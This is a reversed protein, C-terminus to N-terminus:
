MVSHECGWCVQYGEPVIEGCCVCTNNKTYILRSYANPYQNEYEIDIDKEEIKYESNNTKIIKYTDCDEIDVIPSTRVCAGEPFLKNGYVEGVLCIKQTEPVAFPDRVTLSWNKMEYM